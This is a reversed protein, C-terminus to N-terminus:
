VEMLFCGIQILKEVKKWRIVFVTKGVEKVIYNLGNRILKEEEYFEKMPCVPYWKCIHKYYHKNM